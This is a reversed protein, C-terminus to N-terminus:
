GWVCLWRRLDPDTDVLRGCGQFRFHRWLVVSGGSTGNRKVPAACTTEITQSSVTM